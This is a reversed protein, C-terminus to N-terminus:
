LLGRFLDDFEDGGRKKKKKTKNEKTAHVDAGRARDTKAAVASGDEVRRKKEACAGALVAEGTRGARARADKARPEASDSRDRDADDLRAHKKALPAPAPVPPPRASQTAQRTTKSTKTAAGDDEDDTARAIVEGLDDDDDDAGVGRSTAAPGNTPAGDPRGHGIQDDMVAVVAAMHGEPPAVGQGQLPDDTAAEGLVDRLAAHAQALVGVLLLGLQAFRRDAVLRSFARLRTLSLSLSLSQM